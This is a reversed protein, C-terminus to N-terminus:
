WIPDRMLEILQDAYRAVPVTRHIMEALTNGDSMANIIAFISSGERLIFFLKIGFFYCLNGILIGILLEGLVNPQKIFKALLRGFIACGFLAVVWFITMSMSDYPLNKIGAWAVGPLSSVLVSFLEVIYQMM